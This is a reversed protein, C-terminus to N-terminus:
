WKYSNDSVEKWPLVNLNVIVVRNSADSVTFSYVHNRMIPWHLSLNDSNQEYKNEWSESVRDEDKVNFDPIYKSDKNYGGTIFYLRYCNNDDINDYPDEYYEGTPDEGRRFEIHCVKPNEKEM